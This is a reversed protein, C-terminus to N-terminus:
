AWEPVYEMVTVIWSTPPALADAVVVRTTGQAPPLPPYTSSTDLRQQADAVHAFGGLVAALTLGELGQVWGFPNM